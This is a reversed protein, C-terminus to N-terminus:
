VTRKVPGPVKGTFLDILGNPANDGFLLKHNRASEAAFQESRPLLAQEYETLAAAEVDGPPHRHSQRARCRRVHSPQRRRQGVRIM